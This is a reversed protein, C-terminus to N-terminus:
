MALSDRPAISSLMPALLKFFVISSNRAKKNNNAEYGSIRKCIWTISSTHFNLIHQSDIRRVISQQAGRIVFCTSLLKAVAVAQEDNRTIGDM